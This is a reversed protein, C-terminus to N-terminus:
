KETRVLIESLFIRLFLMGITLVVAYKWSFKEIMGAWLFLWVFVLSVAFYFIAKILLAGLFSTIKHLSKM